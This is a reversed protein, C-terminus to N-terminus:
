IPALGKDSVRYSVQDWKEPHEHLAVVAAGIDAPSPPAPLQKVFDEFTQGAMKAYARAATAGFETHPSMPPVLCHFRAARGTRTAFKAAYEAIFANMKKAGSYGGSLPSGFLAAGSGFVVVHEPGEAARLVARVWFFTIKTDVEWPKSFTEWTHESLPRLDLQTGASLVLLNPKTESLIRESAQESTADAVIVKASTKRALEELDRGNRAVATVTMGSAILSEVVGRGFGRSGGVVVASRGEFNM